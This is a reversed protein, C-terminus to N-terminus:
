YQQKGLIIKRYLVFHKLIPEKNKFSKKQQQKTVSQGQIEAERGVIKEVTIDIKKKKKLTM